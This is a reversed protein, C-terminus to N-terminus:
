EAFSGLIKPIRTMEPRTVTWLRLMGNMGGKHIARLCCDQFVQTMESGYEQQFKTPYANLLMEYVRVSFTILNIDSSKRAM